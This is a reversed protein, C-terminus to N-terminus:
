KKKYENQMLLQQSDLMAKEPDMPLINTAHHIKADAMEDLTM